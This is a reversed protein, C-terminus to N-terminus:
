NFAANYKKRLNLYRTISQTCDDFGFCVCAFYEQARLVDLFDSQEPSVRGGPRKLEIWLGAWLGRIPVALFMDPLGKRMGEAKMRAGNRATRMGQMPFAMLVREDPFGLARHQLAWWRIVAQQIQSETPGTKNM